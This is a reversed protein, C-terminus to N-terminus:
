GNGRQTEIEDVLPLLVMEEITSHINLDRELEFLSYLIKRRLAFDDKLSVHKLLLTKLDSLKTEIDSHHERYENVSFKTASSDCESNILRCFYPFAIEDEYRLHEVVEEFYENFFSEIRGIDIKSQNIYLQHIYNKIEPYRDKKYFKHSNKLFKIILSIDMDSTKIDSKNPYFGNYLNCIVLFVNININNEKCIKEITRDGVAYDVEFFDLMLLLPPNENILTSMKMNPNVYIKQSQYM